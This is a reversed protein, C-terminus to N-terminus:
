SRIIKCSLKLRTSYHPMLYILLSTMCAYIYSNIKVVVIGTLQWIHDAYTHKLLCCTPSATGLLLLYYCLGLDNLFLACQVANVRARSRKAERRTRAISGHRHRGILM